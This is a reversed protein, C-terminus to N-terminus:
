SKAALAAREQKRKERAARRLAAREEYSLDTRGSIDAVKSSDGSEKDASASSSPTSSGTPEKSTPVSEKSTSVPKNSTIVPEKTTTVPQKVTTAHKLPTSVHRSDEHATSSRKDSEPLAAARASTMPKSATLSGDTAEQTAAPGIGFVAFLLSPDQFTGEPADRMGPLNM